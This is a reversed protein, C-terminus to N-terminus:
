FRGHTATFRAQNLDNPTQPAQYDEPVVWAANIVEPTPVRSIPVGSRTDIYRGSVSDFRIRADRTAVTVAGVNDDLGDGRLALRNNFSAKDSDTLDTEDAFVLKGEQGPTGPKYHVERCGLHLNEADNPTTSIGAPCLWMKGASVSRAARNGLHQIKVSVRRVTVIEIQQLSAKGRLADGTAGDRPFSLSTFIMSEYTRVGTIVTFPQRTARLAELKQRAESSPVVDGARASAAEGIPTDSVVFELELTRPKNRVHDTIVAGSEVPYETVEAALAEEESIAADILYGGIRIM